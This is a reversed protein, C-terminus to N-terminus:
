LTCQFSDILLPDKGSMGFDVGIILDFAMKPIIFSSISSLSVSHLSQTPQVFFSRRPSSFFAPKSLLHIAATAM